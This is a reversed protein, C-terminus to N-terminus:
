GLIRHNDRPSSNPHIGRPIIQMESSKVGLFKPSEKEDGVCFPVGGFERM